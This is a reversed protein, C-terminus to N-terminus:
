HKPTLAISIIRERIEGTQEDRYTQEGIIKNDRTWVLREAGWDNLEQEWQKVLTGENNAWIQFGNPSYGAELDVSGCIFYRGDPSFAPDGWVYTETGDQQSLLMVSLAEYYTVQIQWLGQADWARIFRYVVHDDSDSINNKLSKTQGNKLTFTLVSDSATVGAPLTPVSDRLMYGPTPLPEPSEKLVYYHGLDPQWDPSLPLATTESPSVAVTDAVAPTEQKTSTACSIIMLGPMVLVINKIMWSFRM